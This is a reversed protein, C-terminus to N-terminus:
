SGQAEVYAVLDRLNKCKRAEAAPIEVNFENSILKLVAVATLSDMGLDGLTADLDLQNAIANQGEPADSQAIQDALIERIRLESPSM